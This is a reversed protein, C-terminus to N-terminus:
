KRGNKRKDSQYFECAMSRKIGSKNAFQPNNCAAAMFRKQKKSKSPM